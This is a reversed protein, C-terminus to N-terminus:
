KMLTKGKEININMRVYAQSITHIHAANVEPLRSSYIYTHRYTHIFTKKQQTIHLIYAHIYVNNITHTNNM